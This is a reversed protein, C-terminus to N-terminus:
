TQGGEGPAQIFLHAALLRGAYASMSRGDAKAARKLAAMEAPSLVICIRRSARRAPAPAPKQKSVRM